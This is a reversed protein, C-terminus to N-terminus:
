GDQDLENDPWGYTVSPPLTVSQITINGARLPTGEKLAEQVRDLRGIMLSRNGVVTGLTAAPKGNATVESGSAPLQDTAHAVMVRRRATGRHQMRSVVEQGVYCGKKFDVGSNQDLSVDHPFADGLDFDTGGEAVGHEIRLADWASRDEGTENFPSDVVLRSVTQKKFREDKKANPPASSGDNFSVAVHRGSIVTLTMDSRLKYLIMRKTFPDVQDARIDIIFGTDDTRSILFDFLIKGQPTLLAGPRAIGEQLDELNCTVVNQLLHEADAGSVAILSRDPLLVTPM